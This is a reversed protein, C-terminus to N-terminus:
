RRELAALLSEAAEGPAEGLVPVGQRGSVLRATRYGYRFPDDAPPAAVMDPLALVHSM